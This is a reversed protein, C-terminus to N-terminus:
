RGHRSGANWDRSRVRSRQALRLQPEAEEAQRRSIAYRIARALQGGDVNGKVLYDQAGAEVAAVGAAEDNLGTLM